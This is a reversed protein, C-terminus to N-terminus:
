NNALSYKGRHQLLKLIGIGVFMRAPGPVHCIDPSPRAARTARPGRTALRRNRGPARRGAQGECAEQLRTLRGPRIIAPFAAPAWVASRPSRHCMESAMSLPQQRARPRPWQRPWPWPWPWPLSLPLAWPWSLKEAANNPPRPGRFWKLRAAAGRTAAQRSPAVRGVRITPLGGM